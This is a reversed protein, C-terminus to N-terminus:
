TCNQHDFRPHFWLLSTCVCNKSPFVFLLQSPTRSTVSLSIRSYVYLLTPPSDQPWSGKGTDQPRSLSAESSPAVHVAQLQGAAHLQRWDPYGESVITRGRSVIVFIFCFPLEASTWTRSTVNIMNTDYTANARKSIISPLRPSTDGSKHKSCHVVVHSPLSPGMQRSVQSPSPVVWEYKAEGAPPSSWAPATFIARTLTGLTLLTQLTAIPLRQFIVFQFTGLFIRGVRAVRQSVSKKSAVCSFRDQWKWYKFIDFYQRIVVHQQPVLIIHCTNIESRTLLENTFRYTQVYKLM